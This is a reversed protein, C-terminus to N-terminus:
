NMTDTIGGVPNPQFASCLTTRAWRLLPITTPKSRFDEPLHQDELCPPNSCELHVPDTSTTYSKPCLKNWLEGDCSSRRYSVPRCIVATFRRLVLATCARVSWCRRKKIEWVIHKFRYNFSKTDEILLVRFANESDRRIHCRRACPM